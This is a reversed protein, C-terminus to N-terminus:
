NLSYKTIKWNVRIGPLIASAKSKQAFEM